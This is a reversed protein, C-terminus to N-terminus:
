RCRDRITRVLNTLDNGSLLRFDKWSMFHVLGNSQMGRPKKEGMYVVLLPIDQYLQWLVFKYKDTQLFRGKAEVAFLRKDVRNTASKILFDVRWFQNSVCLSRKAEDSWGLLPIKQHCFISNLHLINKLDQYVESEYLSDFKIGDVITKRANYKNSKSKM